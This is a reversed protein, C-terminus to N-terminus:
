TASRHALFSLHFMYVSNFLCVLISSSGVFSAWHACIYSAFCVDAFLSASFSFRLCLYVELNYIYIRTCATNTARHSLNDKFFHHRVFVSPHSAWM